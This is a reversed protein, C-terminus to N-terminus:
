CGFYPAVPRTALNLALYEVTTAKMAYNARICLFLEHVNKLFENV